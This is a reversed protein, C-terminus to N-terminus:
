VQVCTCCSCGVYCCRSLPQEYFWEQSFEKDKILSFTVWAYKIQRKEGKETQGLTAKLEDAEEKIKEIKTLDSQAKFKLVLFQTKKLFFNSKKEEPIASVIKILTKNTISKENATIKGGKDYKDLFSVM